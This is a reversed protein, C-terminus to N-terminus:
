GADTGRPLLDRSSLSNDSMLRLGENPVAVQSPVPADLSAETAPDDGVEAILRIADHLDVSTDAISDPAAAM